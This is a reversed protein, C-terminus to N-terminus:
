ARWFVDVKSLTKLTGFFNINRISFAVNKEKKKRLVNCIFDYRRVPGAVSELQHVRQSQVQDGQVHLARLVVV